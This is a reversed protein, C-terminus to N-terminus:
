KSPYMRDHDHPHIDPMHLRWQRNLTARFIERLLEDYDGAEAVAVAETISANMILPVEGDESHDLNLNCHGIEHALLIRRYYDSGSEWKARDFVIERRGDGYSYCLGVRYDEKEPRFMDVYEFTTCSLDVEVGAEAAAVKFDAILEPLGDIKSGDNSPCGCASLFILFFLLITNM